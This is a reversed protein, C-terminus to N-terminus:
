SFLETVREVGLLSAGSNPAAIVIVASAMSAIEIHRKEVAARISAEFYFAPNSVIRGLILIELGHGACRARSHM